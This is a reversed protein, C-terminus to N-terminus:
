RVEEKMKLNLEYDYSHEYGFIPCIIKGCEFFSYHIHKLIENNCKNLYEYGNSYFFRESPQWGALILELIMLDRNTM